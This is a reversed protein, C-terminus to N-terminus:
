APSDQKPSAHEVIRKFLGSAVEKGLTADDTFIFKSKFHLWIEELRMLLFQPKVKIYPWLKKPIGSGFPYTKILKFPFECIVFPHKFEELRELEHRFDEWKEKQTLNGVLESVCGKREVIFVKEYGRITYDGTHLTEVSTGLCSESAPFDWGKQERTDKIVEYKVKPKSM